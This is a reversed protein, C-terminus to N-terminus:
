SGPKRAILRAMNRDECAEPEDLLADLDPFLARLGEAPALYAPDFHPKVSKHRQNYTSYILLGDPALAKEIAPALAASYFRFVMVLNYANPPIPYYDLDSVVCQVPLDGSRARLASMAPFSIDVAHVSYGQQAAYLSNAGLGAALDLALGTRALGLHDALFRDPEGIGGELDAYRRDWKERDSNM